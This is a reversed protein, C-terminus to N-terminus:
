ESDVIKLKRKNGMRGVDQLFTERELKSDRRVRKLSKEAARTVKRLAYNNSPPPPPPPDPWVEAALENLVREQTTGTFRQTQMTKWYRVKRSAIHLKSSWPEAPRVACQEEATVFAQGIMDDITNARGWPKEMGDIDLLFEQFQHFVKNETLHAHVKSVFKNVSQNKSTVSRQSPQALKPMCEGLFARLNIDLFTARHDSHVCENFMNLGSALLFPQLEQQLFAYDLRKSGRIYTPVMAEEGHHYDLAEFLNFQACTLAILNPDDGLQENFDGV